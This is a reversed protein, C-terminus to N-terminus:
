CAGSKITAVVETAGICFSHTNDTVNVNKWVTYGYSQGGLYLHTVVARQGGDNGSITWTGVKKSPDVPDSPGKKYDVLDGNAQHVEQWEWTWGPKTSRVCVTKGSLLTTLDAISGVRTAAPSSCAATAASPLGALTMVLTTAIILPKM